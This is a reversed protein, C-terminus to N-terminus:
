SKAEIEVESSPRGDGFIFGAHANGAWNCIISTRKIRNSDMLKCTCKGQEGDRSKNGVKRASKGKRLRM